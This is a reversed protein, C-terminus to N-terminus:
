KGEYQPEGESWGDKKTITLGDLDVENMTRVNLPRMPFQAKLEEKPVCGVSVGCTGCFLHRVRKLGFEYATFAGGHRLALNEPPPYIWM